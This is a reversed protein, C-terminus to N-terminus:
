PSGINTLLCLNPSEGFTLSTPFKENQIESFIRVIATLVEELFTM